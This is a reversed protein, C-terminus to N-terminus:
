RIPHRLLWRSGDWYVEGSLRLHLLTTDATAGKIDDASVVLTQGAPVNGIVILPQRMGRVVSSVGVQVPDFTLTVLGDGVATIDGHNNDSTAWGLPDRVSRPDIVGSVPDFDTTLRFRSRGDQLCRALKVTHDVSPSHAPPSRLAKIRRIPEVFLDFENTRKAWQAAESMRHALVAGSGPIVLGLGIENVLIEFQWPLLNELERNLANAQDM